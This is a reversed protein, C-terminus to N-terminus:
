SQREAADHLRLLRQQLKKIEAGMSMTKNQLFDSSPCEREAMELLKAAAELICIATHTQKRITEAPIKSM